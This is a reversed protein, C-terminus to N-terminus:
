LILLYNIISILNLKIANVVKEIRLKAIEKLMFPEDNKALKLEIKVSLDNLIEELVSINSVDERLINCLDENEEDQFHRIIPELSEKKENFDGMLNKVDAFTEIIKLHEESFGNRVKRLIPCNVNLKMDAMIRDRIELRMKKADSILSEANSYGTIELISNISNVVATIESSYKESFENYLKIKSNFKREQEKKEEKWLIIKTETNVKIEINKNLNQNQIHLMENLKQIEARFNSQFSQFINIKNILESKDIYSITNGDYNTVLAEFYQGLENKIVKQVNSPLNKTQTDYSYLENNLQYLSTEGIQLLETTKNKIDNNESIAENLSDINEELVLLICSNITMEQEKNKLNIKDDEIEPEMEKMKVINKALEKYKEILGELEAASLCECNKKM